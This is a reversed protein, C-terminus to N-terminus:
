ARGTPPMKTALFRLRSQTETQRSKGLGDGQGLVAESAREPLRRPLIGHRSSRHGSLPGRPGRGTGRKGGARTTEWPVWTKNCLQTEWFGPLTKLEDAGGVRPLGVRTHKLVQQVLYPSIDPRQYILFGPLLQWLLTWLPDLCAVGSFSRLLLLHM